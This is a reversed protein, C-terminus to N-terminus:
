NTILVKKSITQGATEFRFIYIQNKFHTESLKFNHKKSGQLEDSYVLRGNLEFIEMTVDHPSQLELMINVLNQADQYIDLKQFAENENVGSIAVLGQYQLIGSINSNVLVKSNPYTGPSINVNFFALILHDNIVNISDPQYPTNNINLIVNIDKEEFKFYTDAGYIQFYMPQNCIISDPNVMTISGTSKAVLFTHPKQLFGHVNDYTRLDYYGYPATGPIFLKNHILTDNQVVNMYYNITTQSGQALQAMVNSAQTFMTNSSIIKSNNYMFGPYSWNPNTSVLKPSSAWPNISLCNPKYMWSDVPNYIRLNYIGLPTGPSFSFYAHVENDTPAQYYMGTITHSGQYFQILQSGQTFHTNNGTITFNLTQGPHAIPPAVNQISQPFLYITILVLVLTSLVKRM